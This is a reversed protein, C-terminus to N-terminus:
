LGVLCMVINYSKNLPIFYKHQFHIKFKHQLSYNRSKMEIMKDASTTACTLGCKLKEYFTIPSSIDCYAASYSM